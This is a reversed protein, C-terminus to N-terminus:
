RTAATKARAMFIEDLTPTGEDIVEAGSEQAANKLADAGGNCLVTWETREGHCSLAGPLDPATAQPQTYRLLVRHHNQLVDVLLDSLVVRGHHIMAVWDAVREVEDLLHSSFLVTRGDDAVTRIIATLIDRRVLPDLGSSPEDLILLEPRHALAIVLGTRALQGRSLEKVKQSPNLEFQECLSKAFETDWRRDWDNYFAQNYRMLQSITMWEPIDRDESLYGIRGLVAVPDTVPDLHFVRVRGQQAKLLGLIHKIITTKGAGNEGVLGFVAGKPVTLDVDTLAQKKGFARSLKEIRVIADQESPSSHIETM